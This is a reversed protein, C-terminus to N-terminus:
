GLAMNQRTISNELRDLLIRAVEPRFAIYQSAPKHTNLNDCVLIVKKADPYNVDLLHQITHAWDIMTRHEEAWVSCNLRGITRLVHLHQRHGCREYEHDYRAPKGPEPPLAVRIEM